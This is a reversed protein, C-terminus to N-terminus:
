RPFRRGARGGVLHSPARRVRGIPFVDLRNAATRTCGQLNRLIIHYETHARDISRSMATQRNHRLRFSLVTGRPCVMENLKGGKAPHTFRMMRAHEPIKRASCISYRTNLTLRRGMLSHNANIGNSTIRPSTQCTTVYEKSCALKPCKNKLMSVSQNMPAYRSCSQPGRRKM